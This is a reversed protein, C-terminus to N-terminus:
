PAAGAPADESTDFAPEPLTSVHVGIVPVIQGGAIVLLHEVDEGVIPLSSQGPLDCGCRPRSAAGAVEAAAGTPKKGQQGLVKLADVGDIV